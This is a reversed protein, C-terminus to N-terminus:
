RERAWDGRSSSRLGARRLLADKEAPRGLERITRRAAPTPKWGRPRLYGPDSQLRGQITALGASLLKPTEEAWTRREGDWDRDWRVRVRRQLLSRLDEDILVWGNRRREVLGSRALRRVERYAKDVPIGGVLAVRYATLPGAANALVALTRVRTTSGFAAVLAPDVKPIM